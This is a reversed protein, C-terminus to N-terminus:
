LTREKAIFVSRNIVIGQFSLCYGYWYDTMHAEKKM